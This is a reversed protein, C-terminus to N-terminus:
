IVELRHVRKTNHKMAACAKCKSKNHYAVRAEERQNYYIKNECGNISCLKYFSKLKGNITESCEYVGPYLPYVIQNRLIMGVSIKKRTEDSVIRHSGYMPNNIGCMKDSHDPRKRGFLPHNKGRMKKGIRKGFDDEVGNAWWMSIMKASALNGIRERSGDPFCEALILHAQLHDDYSLVVKNETSDDGGMFRPIIHHRHTGGEYLKMRCEDIFKYYRDMM